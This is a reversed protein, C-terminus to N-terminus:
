VAARASCRRTEPCGRLIKDRIGLALLLLNKPEFGTPGRGLVPTSTDPFQPLKPAGIKLAPWRDAPPTPSCAGFQEFYLPQLLKRLARSLALPM